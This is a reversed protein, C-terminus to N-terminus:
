LINWWQLGHSDAMAQSLLILQACTAEFHPSERNELYVTLEAFLSDLEDMPTHDAFAATFHHYRQWLQRAQNAYHEAGRWDEAQAAAQSQILLQSIERHVRDMGWWITVSIALLALLICIGLFPRRM